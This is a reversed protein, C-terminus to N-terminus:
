LVVSCSALLAVRRGEREWRGHQPTMELIPKNESESTYM